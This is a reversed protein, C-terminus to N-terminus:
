SFQPDIPGILGLPQGLPDPIQLGRVFDGQLYRAVLALPKLDHRPTPRHLPGKRPQEIIAAM